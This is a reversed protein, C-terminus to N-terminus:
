LLRMGGIKSRHDVEKGMKRAVADALKEIDSEERVHVDGTFTFHINAPPPPPAIAHGAPVPQAIYRINSELAPLAAQMSRLVDRSNEILGSTDIKLSDTITRTIRRCYARLEAMKSDLGGFLGDMIQCAIRWTKRSPSNIAAAARMASLANNIIQRAANAVIGGGNQIGRAVGNTLENGISFFQSEM